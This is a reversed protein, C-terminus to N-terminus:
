RGVERLIALKDIVFLLLPMVTALLSLLFFKSVFFDFELGRYM